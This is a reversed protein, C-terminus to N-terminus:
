LLGCSYNYVPQLLSIYQMQSLDLRNNGIPPASVLRGGASGHGNAFIATLRLWVSPRLIEIISAECRRAAACPQKSCPNSPSPSRTNRPNNSNRSVTTNSSRLPRKPLGQDTPRGPESLLHWRCGTGGICLLAFMYSAGTCYICFHRIITTLNAICLLAKLQKQIVM